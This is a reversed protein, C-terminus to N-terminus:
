VCDIKAVMAALTHWQAKVIKVEGSDILIVDVGQSKKVPMPEQKTEMWAKMAFAFAITGLLITVLAQIFQKFSFIKQIRKLM